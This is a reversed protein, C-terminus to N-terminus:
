DTIDNAWKEITAYEHETLPMRKAIRHKLVGLRGILVAAMEQAVLDSTEDLLNYAVDTAKEHLRKCEAGLTVMKQRFSEAQKALSITLPNKGTQLWLRAFCEKDIDGANMYMAEVEIYEENTLKRNTLEEFEHKLM